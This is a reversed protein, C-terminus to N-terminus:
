LRVQLRFGNVCDMIEVKGKLNQEVINKIHYLGVGTGTKTYSKGFEFLEKKDVIQKDLGKGDDTFDIIAENEILDMNVFLNSAKHKVSNSVVNDLIISIDKLYM